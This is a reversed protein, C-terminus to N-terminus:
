PLRSFWALSCVSAAVLLGLALAVFSTTVPQVEEDFGVASGINSYVDRLEDTSEATFFEGGTEDAIVRLADRNVPVPIPSPEQELIIFGGDTGFAITSVPIGVEQAAAVALEDGRGVTTAGDSMVVLIAPPRNGDADPPVDEIAQIGAFIAEGIATAEGLELNDIAARVAARNTGASVRINAIGNFSILGLNLEPPLEDVFSLAAEKAGDIRSPRVDTADMSLSTDIAMVITAREAPVLQTRAPEAVAVVAVGLGALFLAAPIHRRWAAREPAIKDLLDVNTFRVAYQRGIFLSILYGILLAAVLLLWWLRLPHVFDIGRIFDIPDGWLTVNDSETM